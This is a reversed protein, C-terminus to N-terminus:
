KRVMRVHRGARTLESLPAEMRLQSELELVVKEKPVNYGVVMGWGKETEVRTGISPAIKKFQCYVDHEYKLCCMLRGCVGSIKMPNLPLDQDKAMRISVPEFDCLFQTCCLRRGCLGLGGIMKAEDRVGIQKMEIRIKFRSALEKVLERFDVRGDATFYFIMKSGDFLLEVNVIKMNLGHKDLLRTCEKLAKQEKAENAIHKARDHYTARRLVKKLPGALDEEDVEMVESVVTAYELGRATQVVVSENLSLELGDPDFYYVKGAKRFVVGVVTPM